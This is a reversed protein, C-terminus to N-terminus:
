LGQQRADGLDKLPPGSLAVLEKIKHHACLARVKSGSILRLRWVLRRRVVVIQEIFVYLFDKDLIAAIRTGGDASQRM